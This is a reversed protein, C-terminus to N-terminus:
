GIVFFALNGLIYYAVRKYWKQPYDLDVDKTKDKKYDLLYLLTHAAWEYKLSMRSRNWIPHDPYLEQLNDLEIRMQDISYKYSDFIKIRNDFVRYEM